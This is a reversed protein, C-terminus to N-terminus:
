KLMFFYFKYVLALLVQSGGILCVIMTKQSGVGEEVLVNRLLFISSATVSLGLLILQLTLIPFVCIVTAPLWLALSYGYLCVTRVMPLSGGLLRNVAVLAYSSAFSM